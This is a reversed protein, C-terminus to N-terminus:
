AKTKVAHLIARAADKDCYWLADIEAYKIWTYPLDFDAYIAEV